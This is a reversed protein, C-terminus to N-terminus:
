NLCVITLGGCNCENSIKVDVTIQVHWLIVISNTIDYDFHVTHDYTLVSKTREHIYIYKKKEESNSNQM